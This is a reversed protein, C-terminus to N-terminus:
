VYVLWRPPSVLTPLVAFVMQCADLVAYSANARCIRIWIVFSSTTEGAFRFLILIADFSSIQYFVHTRAAHALSHREGCPIYKIHCAMHACKQKTLSVSASQEHLLFESQDPLLTCAILKRPARAHSWIRSQEVKRQIFRKRRKQWYLACSIHGIQTVSAFDNGCWWLVCDVVVGTWNHTFAIRIIFLPSRLLVERGHRGHGRVM